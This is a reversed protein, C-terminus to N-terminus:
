QEGQKVMAFSGPNLIGWGIYAESRLYVQNHGKLDGADADNDPNGYPIIELPLEKAIGWKFANQFDGVIVKDRSSNASLTSNKDLKVGGLNDPTAGWAFEPYKRANNVTLAAIATRVDPAIVIGNVDFGADDVKAIAEDVNVDAPTSDHGYTIVNAGSAYNAIVYDFHNNGIVTSAAQGTRPNVGHFAMIDIGRALKKAFGEIWSELLPLAEEETVTMLEDSVRAGYEVKIPVITVPALTAGGNSKAGNEAVIDIEKDMSFTFEKTGNFKIPKQASLRALSSKGTVLNFIENTISEPFMTSKSLVNPM